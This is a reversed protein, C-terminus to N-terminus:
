ACMGSLPSCNTDDPLTPMRSRSSASCQTFSLMSRNPPSGLRTSIKPWDPPPPLTHESHDIGDARPRNWRAAMWLPAVRRSRLTSSPTPALSRRSVMRFRFGLWARSSCRSGSACNIAAFKSSAFFGARGPAGLLKAGTYSLRTTVRCGNSGTALGSFASMGSITPQVEVSFVAKMIPSAAANLSSM